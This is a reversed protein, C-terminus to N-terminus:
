KFIDDSFFHSTFIEPNERGFKRMTTGAYSNADNEWQDGDQGAGPQLTGREDQELHKLEHSLSRLVDALNRNVIVVRIEKTGPMYGGFSKNEKIFNDNVILKVKPRPVNLEECCQEVLKNILKIHNQQVQLM